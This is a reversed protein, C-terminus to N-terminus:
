RTFFILHCIGSDRPNRPLETLIQNKTLSKICDQTVNNGGVWFCGECVWWKWYSTLLSPLFPAFIANGGIQGRVRGLQQELIVLIQLHYRQRYYVLYLCCYFLSQDLLMESWKTQWLGSANPCIKEASHVASLSQALACQRLGCNIM